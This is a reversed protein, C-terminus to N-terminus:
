SFRFWYKSGSGGGLVEGKGSKRCGEMCGDGGKMRPDWRRSDSPDSPVNEPTGGDGLHGTMRWEGVREKGESRSSLTEPLRSPSAQDAGSNVSGRDACSTSETLSNNPNGYKPTRRAFPRRVDNNVKAIMNKTNSILDKLNSKLGSILTM